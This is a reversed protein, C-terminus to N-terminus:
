FFCMKKVKHQDEQQKLREQNKIFEEELILYAKIREFRLQKLRCPTYPLVQRLKNVIEPGKRRKTRKGIRTPIPPEYKRRGAIFIKLEMRNIYKRAEKDGTGDGRGEGSSDQYGLLICIEL